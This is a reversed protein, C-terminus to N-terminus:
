KSQVVGYWTRLPVAQVALVEPTTAMGKRGTCNTAALGWIEAYYISRTLRRQRTECSKEKRQGAIVAM